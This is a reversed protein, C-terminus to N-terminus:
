SPLAFVRRLRTGDRLTLEIEVARPLAARTERSDDAPWQEQWAGAADLHRFRLSSVGDLLPHIEPRSNPARDLVPWILLELRTGRLRYGIRIEDRGSPSKRTFELASETGRDQADLAALPRGQWASLSPANSTDAGANALLEPNAAAGAASILSAIGTLGAPGAQREGGPMAPAAAAPARAVAGPVGDGDPQVPGIHIPRAVPQAVDSGFRAFFLAIDQWRESEGILSESSRSLSDLGRYALTAVLALLAIAVVLELLTMGRAPKRMMRMSHGGM